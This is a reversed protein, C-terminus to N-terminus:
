KEELAFAALIVLAARKLVVHEDQTMYDVQLDGRHWERAAFLARNAKAWQESPVRQILKIHEEIYQDATLSDPTTTM